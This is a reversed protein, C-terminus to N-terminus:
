GSSGSAVPASAHEGSFWVNARYRTAPKLGRLEVTAAFDTEPGVRKSAQAVRAAGDAIEVHMWGAHDSRAWVSARNEHVEGVLVGHTPPTAPAAAERAESACAVLAL